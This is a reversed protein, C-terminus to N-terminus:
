VKRDIDNSFIGRIMAVGEINLNQFKEINSSNIGGVCFIPATTIKRVRKVFDIGKSRLNKKFPTKFIPGISIYNAGEKEAKIAEKLSHTSVGIFRTISRGKPLPSGKQLKQKQSGKYISAGAAEWM